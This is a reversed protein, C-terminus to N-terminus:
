SHCVGGGLQATTADTCFTIMASNSTFTCCMPNAADTCDAAVHCIQVKTTDSCSSAFHSPCSAASTCSTGLASAGCNPYQGQGNGEDVGCCAADHRRM